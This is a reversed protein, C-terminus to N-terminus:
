VFGLFVDHADFPLMALFEFGRTFTGSGFLFFIEEVVDLHLQLHNFIVDVEILRFCLVGNM